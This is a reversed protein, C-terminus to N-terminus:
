NRVSIIYQDLLLMDWVRAHHGYLVLSASLSNTSSGGKNIDNQQQALVDKWYRLSRDESASCLDMQNTSWKLKM